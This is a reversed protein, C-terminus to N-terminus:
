FVASDRVGLAFVHAQHPHQSDYSFEERPIERIDLQVVILFKLHLTAQIGEAM